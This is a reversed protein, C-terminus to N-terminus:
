LFICETKLFNSWLLKGSNKQAKQNYYNGKKKKAASQDGTFGIDGGFSM